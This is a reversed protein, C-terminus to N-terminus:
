RSTARRLKHLTIHNEHARLFARAKARFREFDGASGGLPLPVEAVDGLEDEFDTYVV